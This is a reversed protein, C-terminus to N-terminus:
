GSRGRQGTKRTSEKQTDRERQKAQAQSLELISRLPLKIRWVRRNANSKRQNNTQRVRMM